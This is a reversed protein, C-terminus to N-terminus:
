GALWSAITVLLILPPGGLDDMKITNEMIFWGNQPGVGIKPFMWSTKLAEPIKMSPRLYIFSSKDFDVPTMMNGGWVIFVIFPFNRATELFLPPTKVGWFPHHFYHFVRNFYIIQPGVGIKPEVGEEFLDWVNANHSKVSIPGGHKM